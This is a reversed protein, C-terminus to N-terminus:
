LTLFKRHKRIENYLKAVAPESLAWAELMGEAEDLLPKIEVAAEADANRAMWAVFAPWAINDHLAAGLTLGTHAEIISPPNAPHVEELCEMALLIRLSGAAAVDVTAVQRCLELRKGYEGAVAPQLATKLWGAARNLLAGFRRDADRRTVALMDLAAEREASARTAVFRTVHDAWKLTQNRAQQVRCGKGGLIFLPDGFLVYAGWCSPPYPVADMSARALTLAGGVPNREAADYFAVAIDAAVRDPVEQLCAVVAPAGKQVLRAAFGAPGGAAGERMRGVECANLFVFPTRAGGLQSFDAPALSGKAGIPMAEGLSGAVGHGVFHFARLGENLARRLKRVQPRREEKVTVELAGLKEAVGSAEQDGYSLDPDARVILASAELKAPIRNPSLTEMLNGLSPFRSITRATGLWENGTWLLEIPLESMQGYASTLYFITAAQELSIRLAEPLTDWAAAGSAKLGEFLVEDLPENNRIREIDDRQRSVLEIAAKVFEPSAKTLILRQELPEPGSRISCVTLIDVGPEITLVITRELRTLRSALVRLPSTLVRDLSPAANTSADALNALVEPERIAGLVRLYDDVRSVTAEPRSLANLLLRYQPLLAEKFVARRGSSPLNRENEDIVRRIDEELGV